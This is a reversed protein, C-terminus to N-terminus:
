SYFMIFGFSTRFVRQWLVRINTPKKTVQHCHTFVHRESCMTTYRRSLPSANKEQTGTLMIFLCVRLPRPNVSRLRILQKKILATGYRYSSVRIFMQHEHNTHIARNKISIYVHSAYHRIDCLLVKVVNPLKLVQSFHYKWEMTQWWNNTM